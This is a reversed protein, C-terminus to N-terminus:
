IMRLCRDVRNKIHNRLKNPRKCKYAPVFFWIKQSSFEMSHMRMGVEFGDGIPSFAIKFKDWRAEVTIFDWLAEELLNWEEM